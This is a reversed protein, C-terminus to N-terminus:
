PARHEHQAARPGSVTGVDGPAEPEGEGSASPLVQELTTVVAQIDTPAALAGEDPESAIPVGLHGAMRQLLAVTRTSEQEALLNVQLDLHARRDAQATLTNQSVLVFISLFIAELSVVLTLFSFPFPDFVPVMPVLGVNICVWVAFWVAHVLACTPTGAAAAIRNALREAPTRRALAAAELAAIAAVNKAVIRPPSKVGNGAGGGIGGVSGSADPAGGRTARPSPGNRSSGTVPSM